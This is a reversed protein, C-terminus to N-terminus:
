NSFYLKMEKKFEIGLNDKNNTIIRQAMKKCVPNKDILFSRKLYDLALLPNNEVYEAIDRYHKGQSFYKNIFKFFKSKFARDYKNYEIYETRNFDSPIRINGSKITLTEKGLAHALGIEYFINGITDSTLDDTVIAITLPVSVIGEWIKLLFDRGTVDSNADIQKIGKEKLYKKVTRRINTVERPIAEGLKTIIFATKFNPLIEKSYVEGDIPSYLNM